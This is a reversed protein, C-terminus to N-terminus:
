GYRGSFEHALYARVFGPMRAADIDSPGRAALFGALEPAKEAQRHAEMRALLTASDEAFRIPRLFARQGHGSVLVWDEPKDPELVITPELVIGTEERLERLASGALDVCDGDRLDNRDPTGCPFYAQGANATHCGMIGLLAAGDATWPVVAAFANTVTSDPSGADRFGLFRSYATEFLDVDCADGEIRCACALLVSGDFMNPAAARRRNWNQAIADRNDEAWVWRHPVLRATLRRLRKLSFADSM